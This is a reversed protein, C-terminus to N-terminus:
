KGYQQALSKERSRRLKATDLYRKWALVQFRIFDAPNGELIKGTTAIQYQLLPPAHLLEVIDIRDEPTKLKRAVDHAVLAREELSLPRDATVAVDFDSQKGATGRAHSGFLIILRDSEM